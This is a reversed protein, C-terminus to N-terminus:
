IDTTTRLLYILAAACHTLKSVSLLVFTSTVIVMSIKNTARPINICDSIQKHKSVVEKKFDREKKLKEEVEMLQTISQIPFWESAEFEELPVSMSGNLKMSQLLLVIKDLKGRVEVRFSAEDGIM